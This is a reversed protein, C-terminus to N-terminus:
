RAVPKDAAAGANRFRALFEQARGVMFGMDSGIAVWTGYDIFRAVMEPDASSARRSGAYAAKAAASTGGGSEDGPPGDVGSDSPGIFISDIGPVAAIEDAARAADRDRDRLDGRERAEPLQAPAARRAIREPSAAGEPPYRTYAVAHRAEDANQVFPLLSQAAYLARKIVM